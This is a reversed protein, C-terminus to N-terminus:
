INPKFYNLKDDKQLQYLNQSTPNPIQLTSMIISPWIQDTGKKPFCIQEPGFWRFAHICQNSKTSEKTSTKIEKVFDIKCTHYMCVATPSQSSSILFIHHFYLLKYPNHLSSSTVVSDALPWFAPHLKTHAQNHLLPIMMLQCIQQVTPGSDQIRTVTNDDDSISCLIYTAQLFAFHIKKENWLLLLIM